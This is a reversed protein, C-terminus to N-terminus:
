SFLTGDRNDGCHSQPLEHVQACSTHNCMATVLSGFLALLSLLSSHSKKWALQSLTIKISQTIFAVAYFTFTTQKHLQINIM